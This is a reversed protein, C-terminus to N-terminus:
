PSHGVCTCDLHEQAFTPHVHVVLCRGFRHRVGGGRRVRGQRLPHKPGFSGRLPGEMDNRQETREEKAREGGATVAVAQRGCTM